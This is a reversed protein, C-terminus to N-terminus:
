RASIQAEAEMEILYMRADPEIEDLPRPPATALPPTFFLHLAERLNNLAEQETEGQSAVSNEACAAVFLDDEPWVYATFSQKM